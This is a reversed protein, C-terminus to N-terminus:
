KRKKKRRRKKRTKLRKLADQTYVVNNEQQILRIARWDRKYIIESFRTRPAFERALGTGKFDFTLFAERVKKALRPHLNHIYGYSTPPFPQSQWIVRVDGRNVVGQRVMRKLVADAIPAADYDRNVVGMISNDHKGSYVVKYDRDPVVGLSKFLARPAQNGSNSTPTVHAVKRGKLDALTKIGSERHTILQLRYGYKGDDKTMVAFPIYGALNVGYVTAGTAVGAIHLRGSRLAEIQAAYSEAAYWKVKRGTLRALHDTFERFAGEYVAPDEAPTYSFVLVEPDRWVGPDDPADALLDGDADCYRTDLDGRKCEAAAAGVAAASALVALSAAAAVVARRFLTRSMM